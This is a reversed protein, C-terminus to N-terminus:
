GRRLITEWGYTTSGVITGNENKIQGKRAPFHHIDEKPDCPLFPAWVSHTYAFDCFRAVASTNFFKTAELTRLPADGWRHNYIGNSDMVQQKWEVVEPRRFAPIFFWELNTSFVRMNGVGTGFLLSPDNAHDTNPNGPHSETFNKLDVIVNSPEIFTSYWMYDLKRERMAEFPNSPLDSIICSDTDMRMVYNPLFGLEFFYKFWFACMRKYAVGEHTVPIEDPEDETKSFPVDLHFRVPFPSAQVIKARTKNDLSADSLIMVVPVSTPDPVSFHRALSSLSHLLSPCQTRSPRYIDPGTLYVIADQHEKVQTEIQNGDEEKTTLSTVNCGRLSNWNEQTGQIGRAMRMNNILAGFSCLVMCLTCAWYALMPSSLLKRSLPLLLRM